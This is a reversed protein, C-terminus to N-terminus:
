RGIVDRWMQSDEIQTKELQKCIEVENNDTFKERANARKRKRKIIEDTLITVVEHHYEKLKERTEFDNYETLEDYFLRYQEDMVKYLGNLAGITLNYTEEFFIERSEYDNTLEDFLEIQELGFDLASKKKIGKETYFLEIREM